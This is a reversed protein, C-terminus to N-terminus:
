AADPSRSVSGESGLLYECHGVGSVVHELNTAEDMPVAVIHRDVADVEAHCGSLANSQESRVPCSLRREDAVDDSQDM